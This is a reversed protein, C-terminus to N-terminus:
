KWPKDEEFEKISKIVPFKEICQSDGDKLRKLVANATKKNNTVAKIVCDEYDWCEQVIWVNKSM